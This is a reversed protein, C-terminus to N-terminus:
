ADVVESEDFTDWNVAYQAPVSAPVSGGYLMAVRRELPNFTYTFCCRFGLLVKMEETLVVISELHAPFVYSRDALQVYTHFTGGPLAFSLKDGGPRVGRIDVLTGADPAGDLILAPNANNYYSPKIKDIRPPNADIDLDISNFIRLASDRALPAVGVPEPQDEWTQIPNVPSELNPLLGEEASEADVYFGRGLANQHFPLEGTEVPCKGGYAREWTLPISDFPEPASALLQDDSRVWRRDGIVDLTYGLSGVQLHVRSRTAQPTDPYANGLLIVDVGQRRFPSEEDFNGFETEVAEGIPWAQIDAPRLTSNDINFMAKVIVSAMMKNEGVITSTIRASYRTRNVLDM